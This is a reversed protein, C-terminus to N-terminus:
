QELTFEDTIEKKNELMYWYLFMQFADREHPTKLFHPIHWKLHRAVPKWLGPSILCLDTKNMRCAVGIQNYLNSVAPIFDSFKPQREMVVRDPAYEYSLFQCVETPKLTARVLVALQDPDVLVLGTKEGPDLALVKM